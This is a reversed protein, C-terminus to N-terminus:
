QWGESTPIPQAHPDKKPNRLLQTLRKELEPTLIHEMDEASRHVKDAGIGLQSTLYVEWLRHLRVIRQARRKGDFTLEYAGDKKVCWGQFKLRSLALWLKLNKASTTKGMEQLSQGPYKWLHKLYNESMCSRRFRLIRFFRIILGQEPAFFLALLSVASALLVITPGTPLKLPMSVSLVVGGFGCGMGILGAWILMASLKHTLRRAAIAPAILMGSMLVIGVSRLGIVVAIALLILTLVDIGQTRIGCSTAFQPDFNVAKIHHFLLSVFLIVGAALLAYLTLDSAVMTASQGYLFVQLRQYLMPNVFQLHSALLVGLGLFSTLIACLAADSSLKQKKQLYHIGYLGLFATICAGILTFSAGLSAGLIIGPYTAHSLAEGVLSRRRIYVLVGVLSASLCMLISGWTPGILVPDRFFQELASM